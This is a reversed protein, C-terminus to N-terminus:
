AIVRPSPTNKAAANLLEFNAKPQHMQVYKNFSRHVINQKAIFYDRTIM